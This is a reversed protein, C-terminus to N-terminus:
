AFINYIQPALNCLTLQGGVANLKKNLAVLKRLAASSLYEVNGFDLVLQRRGLEDVLSLLQEGLIQIHPEDLIKRETFHVVTVEGIEEVELHRRPQAPM